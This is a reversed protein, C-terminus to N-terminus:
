KIPEFLEPEGSPTSSLGTRSSQEEPPPSVIVTVTGNNSVANHTDTVTFNFSDNCVVCTDTPDYTVYGTTV